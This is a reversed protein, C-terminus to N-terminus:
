SMNYIYMARSINAIVDSAYGVGDSLFIIIYPQETFIIGEDNVVSELNGVKHAVIEQPVYKDIRDHFDTQKMVDILHSYGQTDKNDYLYKLVVFENAVTTDDTLVTNDVNLLAAYQERYSTWGGLYHYIMTAATNDSSIITDDLLTGLSIPELYEGYDIFENGEEDPYYDLYLMDDISLRGENIYNYVLINMNLKYISAAYFQQNENFSIQEGTSLNYYMFGMNASEEGLYNYIRDQISGEGYCLEKEKEGLEEDKNVEEEIEVATNEESDNTDTIEEESYTTEINQSSDKKNSCGISITCLGILMILIVKRKM